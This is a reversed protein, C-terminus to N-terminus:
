YERAGGQNEQVNRSVSQETSFLRESLEKDSEADKTTIQTSHAQATLATELEPPLKKGRRAARTLIGNCAKASLYYKPHPCDVLIQSLRSANEESPSEGFSHTMFDGLLAGNAWQMTSADQTRGGGGMLCLCM